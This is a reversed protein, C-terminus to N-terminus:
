LKFKIYICRASPLLDVDEDPCQDNKGQLAAFTEPEDWMVWMEGEGSCTSTAGPLCTVRYGGRPLFRALDRATEYGDADALSTATCTPYDCSKVAPDGEGYSSEERYTGAIFADPNARMREIHSSALLVATSRYASLRPMQVSYALMGSLALMGLSLILLAVLVEILSAGDQRPRPTKM